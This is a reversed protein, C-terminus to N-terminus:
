AAAAERIQPSDQFKAALEKAANAVYEKVDESDACKQEIEHGNHMAWWIHNQLWNRTGYHYMDVIREGITKGEQDYTIVKVYLNKQQNQSNQVLGSNVDTKETVKSKSTM